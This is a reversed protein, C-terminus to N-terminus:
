GFHEDVFDVLLAAVAEPRQLHAAHGAHEVIEARGRPVGTALRRAAEVYAEDRAGAIAMFPLELKHLEQWVPELVGQGAMRLLQALDRPDHSLRGARQQEVLADPQDAFLPQREWIGVIHEIAAGEM